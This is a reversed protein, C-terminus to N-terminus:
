VKQDLYNILDNIFDTEGNIEKLEIRANILMRESLIDSLVEQSIKDANHAEDFVLIKGKLELKIRKRIHENFIYQYPAVIIDSFESTKRALFYPCVMRKQGVKQLTDISLVTPLTLISFNFETRYSCKGEESLVKCAELAELSSLRRCKENLCLHQRSALNVATYKKRLINNIRELEQLVQRVQEHTRTIYVVKRDEPLISALACITKGFGNCAESVLIGHKGVVNRIDRMFEKQQRYPKYPFLSWEQYNKNLEKLFSRKVRHKKNLFKECRRCFRSKEYDV